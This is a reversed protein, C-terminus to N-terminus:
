EKRVDLRTGLVLKLHSVGRLEPEIVRPRFTLKYLGHRPTLSRRGAAAVHCAVGKHSRSWKSSEPALPDMGLLAGLVINRFKPVRHGLPLRHALPDTHSWASRGPACVKALLLRRSVGQERWPFGPHCRRGRTDSIHDHLRGNGVCWHSHAQNACQALQALAACTRVVPWFPLLEPHPGLIVFLIFALQSPLLRPQM